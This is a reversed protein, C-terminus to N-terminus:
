AGAARYCLEVRVNDSDAVVLGYRTAHGLTVPLGHFGQIEHSKTHNVSAM